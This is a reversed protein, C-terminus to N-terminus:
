AGGAGGSSPPDAVFFIQIVSINENKCHGTKRRAFVGLFYEKSSHIFMKFFRQVLVFKLGEKLHTKNNLCYLAAANWNTWFAEEAPYRLGNKM